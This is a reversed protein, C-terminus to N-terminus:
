TGFSIPPLPEGGCAKRWGEAAERELSKLRAALKDHQRYLESAATVRVGSEPTAYAAGTLAVEATARLAGGSRQPVKEWLAAFGRLGAGAARSLALEAKVRQCMEDSLEAKVESLESGSMVGRTVVFLWGSCALVVSLVVGIVNLAVHKRQM